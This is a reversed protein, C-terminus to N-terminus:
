VEELRSSITNLQQRLQNTENTAAKLADDVVNSSNCKPQVNETELTNLHELHLSSDQSWM